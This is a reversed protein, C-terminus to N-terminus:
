SCIAEYNNSLLQMLTIYICMYVYMYCACMCVYM